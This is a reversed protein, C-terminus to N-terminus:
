AAPSSRQAAGHLSRQTFRFERGLLFVLMPHEQLVIGAELRNLGEQRNSACIGGTQLLHCLPYASGGERPNLKASRVNRRPCETNSFDPLEEARTLGSEGARQMARVHNRGEWRRSGWNRCNDARSCRRIQTSLTIAFRTCAHSRMM